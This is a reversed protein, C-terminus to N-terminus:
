YHLSHHNKIHKFTLFGLISGFIILQAPQNLGSIVATTLGITVFVNDRADHYLFLESFTAPTAIDEKKENADVDSNITTIDNIEIEVYKLDNDKETHNTNNNM